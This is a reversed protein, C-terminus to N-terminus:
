FEHVSLTMGIVTEELIILRQQIEDNEVEFTAMGIEVTDVTDELDSMTSQLM